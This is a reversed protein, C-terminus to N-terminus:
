DLLNILIESVEENVKNFFDKDQFYDPDCITGLKDEDDECYSDFNNENIIYSGNTRKFYEGSIDLIFGNTEVTMNFTEKKLTLEWENSTQLMKLFEIKDAKTNM